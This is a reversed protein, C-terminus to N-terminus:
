MHQRYDGCSTDGLHKFILNFIENEKEVPLELDFKKLEKQILEIADVTVKSVDEMYMIM